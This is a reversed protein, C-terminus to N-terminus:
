RAKVLRQLCKMARQLSSSRKAAVDPRWHSDVFEVLRSSYAPGVRRGSEPRPTMDAKLDKRRSNRALNVMVTKPDDLQEPNVAIKNRAVGLFKALTEADGMLWAEVARVAVRFCLHNGGRSPLWDNCLPPACDFDRDLDVLVLWPVHQAANHYGAIRQRIRDKGLKGYITGPLGGVLVIPKRVVAEDVDGEVAATIVVPGAM